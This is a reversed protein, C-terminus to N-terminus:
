TSSIAMMRASGTRLIPTRGTSNGTYLTLRNDKVADSLSSKSEFKKMMRTTIRSNRLASSCM